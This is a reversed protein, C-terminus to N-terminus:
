PFKADINCCPGINLLFPFADQKVKSCINCDSLHISGLGLYESRIM